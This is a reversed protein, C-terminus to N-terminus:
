LISRGLTQLLVEFSNIWGVLTDVEKTGTVSTSTNTNALLTALISNVKLLNLQFTAFIDITMSIVDVELKSITLQLSYLSIETLRQVNIIVQLQQSTFTAQINVLSTIQLIIEFLKDSKGISEANVV